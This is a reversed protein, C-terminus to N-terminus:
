SALVPISRFLETTYKVMLQLMWPLGLLFAVAIAFLKPVFTLTQEQIQTVAQFVSVVLGVVLAIMLM